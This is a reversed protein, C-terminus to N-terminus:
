REGEGIPVDLRVATGGSPRRQWSLTAGILLARERMGRMGGNGAAADSPLGVGDDSVILALYQSSQDLELQACSAQAHRVVNTLSEQAIRYVVLEEDPTLRLPGDPMRRHIILGTRRSLRNCLANLAAALGLEDLAEPRLRRALRRVDDLAAQATREAVALDDDTVGKSRLRAIQLVLATLVQGIEDHLESALHRRDADEASATRRASDRRETELRELMANFADTLMTVESPPGTVPVRDGPRLPDIRDMAAALRMLPGFARRMLLLNAVLMVTLGGVLALIRGNAPEVFLVLCAVVLVCANPVFLRWFLPIVPPPGRRGWDRSRMVAMM